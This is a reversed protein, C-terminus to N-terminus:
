SRLLKRGLALIVVLVAAWTLLVVLVLGLAGTTEKLESLDAQPEQALAQRRM